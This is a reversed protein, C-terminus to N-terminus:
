KPSKNIHPNANASMNAVVKQLQAVAAKLKRTEGALERLAEWLVPVLKANDVFLKSEDEGVTEADDDPLIEATTGGHASVAAPAFRLLEEAIFGEVVEGPEGATYRLRHAHPAAEVRALAGPIRSDLSEPHFLSRGSATGYTVHAAFVCATHEM